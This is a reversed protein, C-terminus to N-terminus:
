AASDRAKTLAEWAARDQDLTPLKLRKREDLNQSIGVYHYIPLNTVKLSWLGKDRVLNILFDDGYFTHLSVPIPETVDKRITFAWGERQTFSQVTAPRFIEVVRRQDSITQPVVIGTNPYTQFTDVITEFFQPPIIIDDNLVSVLETKAQEIGLNWSGNVGLNTKQKLYKIPLDSFKKCTKKAIGNGNDIVIIEFPKEHNARINELLPGLFKDKIVPIIATLQPRTERPIRRMWAPAAIPCQPEPSCHEAEWGTSKLENVLRVIGPFRDTADHIIVEGNPKLKNWFALLVDFSLEYPHTGDFDVDIHFLDVSGDEFSGACQEAKARIFEVRDDAAPVELAEPTPNPDILTLNWNDYPLLAERIIRASCGYRVGAEVITTQKGANAEAIRGVARQYFQAYPAMDIACPVESYHRM